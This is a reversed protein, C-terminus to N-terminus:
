KAPGKRSKRLKQIARRLISDKFAYEPYLTVEAPKSAELDSVVDAIGQFLNYKTLVMERAQRIRPIAQEYHNSQLLFEITSIAGAPNNVDIRVMAEPSFYNEINTCGAYVPFTWGLYCDALKETWYEPIQNNEIVIHYQYPAIAQQKDTIPRNGFGFVDIKDKFHKELHQVFALRRVHGETMAKSSCIVSVRPLKPPIPLQILADYDLSVRKKWSGPEGQIEIGYWWPLPLQRLFQRKTTPQRHPSVVADFQNLFKPNYQRISPPEATAFIVRSRPCTVTTQGPLGDFVVWAEFPGKDHADLSFTFPGWRGKQGPTQRLLPEYAFNTTLKISM